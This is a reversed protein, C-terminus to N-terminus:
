VIKAWGSDRPAITLYQLTSRPVMRLRSSATAGSALGEWNLPALTEAPGILPDCAMEDEMGCYDWELRRARVAEHTDKIIRKKKRRRKKGIEKRGGM